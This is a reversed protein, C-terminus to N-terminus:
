TSCRLKFALFLFLFNFYFVCPTLSVYLQVELVTGFTSSQAWPLITVCSALRGALVQVDQGAPHLLTRNRQTWTALWLQVPSCLQNTKDLVLMLICTCRHQVSSAEWGWCGDQESFWHKIKHWQTICNHEQWISSSM